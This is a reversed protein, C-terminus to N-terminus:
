RTRKVLHTAAGGDSPVEGVLALHNAQFSLYNLFVGYCVANRLPAVGGAIRPAVSAPEAPFLTSM